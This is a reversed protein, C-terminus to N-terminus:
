RKFAWNWIPFYDTKINSKIQGPVSSLVMWINILERIIVVQSVSHSM